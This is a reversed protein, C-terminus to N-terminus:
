SAPKNKTPLMQEQVLVWPAVVIAWFVTDNQNWHRAHEDDARKIQGNALWVEITSSRDDESFKVATEVLDLAPSVAIVAGRAFHRQLESWDIQGSELNLKQQLQERNLENTTQESNM